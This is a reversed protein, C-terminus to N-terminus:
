LSMCVMYEDCAWLYVTAQRKAVASTNRCPSACVMYLKPSGSPDPVLLNSLCSGRKPAFFFHRSSLVSPIELELFSHTTVENGIFVNFDICAESVVGYHVRTKLDNKNSNELCLYIMILWHYNTPNLIRFPSQAGTQIEILQGMTMGRQSGCICAPVRANGSAVLKPKGYLLSSFCSM